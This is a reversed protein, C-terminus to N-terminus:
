GTSGTHGATLAKTGEGPAAIQPATTAPAPERPAALDSLSCDLASALRVLARLPPNGQGAEVLAVQALTMGTLDALNRQTWGREERRHFVQEAVFHREDIEQLRVAQSLRDERRRRLFRKVGEEL